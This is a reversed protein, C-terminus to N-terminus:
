DWPCDPPSGGFYLFQILHNVDLINVANDKKCDGCVYISDPHVVEYCYPGGWDPVLNGSINSNWMWPNIADYQCSDIWITDGIATPTTEVWWVLENFGDHFGTYIAAGGFGVTDEANGDVGFPTMLFILQFRNPWGMSVPLSDYTIPTFNNTYSGNRETWVRFGNTFGTVWSADGPTYEARFTFRVPHNYVAKNGCVGKIRDLVIKTDSLIPQIMFILCISLLAFIRIFKAM